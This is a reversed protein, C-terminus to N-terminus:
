RDIERDADAAGVAVAPRATPIKPAIATAPIPNRDGRYEATPHATKRRHRRIEPGDAQGTEPPADADTDAPIVERGEPNRTRGPASFRIPM